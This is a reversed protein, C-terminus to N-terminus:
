RLWGLWVLALCLIGIAARSSVMGTATVVIGEGVNGRMAEEREWLAQARRSPLPVSFHLDLLLLPYLAVACECRCCFSAQVAGSLAHYSCNKVVVLCFKLSSEGTAALQTAGGSDSGSQAGLLGPSHTCRRRSAPFFVTWISFPGTALLIVLGEVGESIM